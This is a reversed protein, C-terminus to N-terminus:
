RGVLRVIFRLLEMRVASQRPLDGHRDWSKDPGAATVLVLEVAAMVDGKLWGARLGPVLRARESFAKNSPDPASLAREFAATPLGDEDM